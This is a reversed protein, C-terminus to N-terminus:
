TFQNKKKKEEAASDFSQSCRACSIRRRIKASYECLRKALLAHAGTFFQRRVINIHSARINGVEATVRRRNPPQPPSPPPPPPPPSSSSSSYLALAFTIVIVCVCSQKAEDVKRMAQMRAFTRLRSARAYAAAARSRACGRRALTRVRARLTFAIAARCARFSEDVANARERMNSVDLKSVAKKTIAMKHASAFHRYDNRWEM